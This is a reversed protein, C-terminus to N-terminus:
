PLSGLDQPQMPLVLIYLIVHVTCNTVCCLQAENGFTGFVALVAGYYSLVWLDFLEKKALSESSLAADGGATFHCVPVCYALIYM